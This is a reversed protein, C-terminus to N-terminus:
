VRILTSGGCNSDTPGGCSAAAQCPWARILTSGGCNSDTPKGAAAHRADPLLAAHRGLAAWGSVAAWEDAEGARGLLEGGNTIQLGRPAASMPAVTSSQHSPSAWHNRPM